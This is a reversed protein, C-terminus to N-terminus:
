NNATQENTNTQQSLAFRTVINTNLLIFIRVQNYYTEYLPSDVTLGNLGETVLSVTYDPYILNDTILQSARTSEAVPPTFGGDKLVSFADKGVYLCVLLLVCSLSFILKKNNTLFLIYRDLLSIPAKVEHVEGSDDVEKKNM